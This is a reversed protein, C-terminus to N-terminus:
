HDEHATAISIYVSTLLTFVLAQILCVIIGLLVLPIPALTALTWGIVNGIFGLKVALFDGFDYILETIKEHVSHDAYINTRLRIGLTLPRISHSILELPFMLWGLALLLVGHLHGTFHEFYKLGNFRFGQINYFIFVFIGM